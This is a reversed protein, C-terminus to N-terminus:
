VIFHAVALHAGFFCGCYRFGKLGMLSHLWTVNAAPNDSKRRHGDSNYRMLKASRCCMQSDLLFFATAGGCGDGPYVPTRVGACEM